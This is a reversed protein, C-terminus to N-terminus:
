KSGVAELLRVLTDAESEGLGIEAKLAKVEEILAKLREAKELAADLDSLDLDVKLSSVIEAM